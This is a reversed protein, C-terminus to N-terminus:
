RACLPTWATSEPSDGPLTRPSALSHALFHLSSSSVPCCPSHPPYSSSPILPALALPIYTCTTTSLAAASLEQSALRTAASLLLSPHLPARARQWRPPRRDRATSPRNGTEAAFAATTAQPHGPESRPRCISPAHGQALAHAYSALVRALAVYGVWSAPPPDRPNKHFTDRRTSHAWALRFSFAAM